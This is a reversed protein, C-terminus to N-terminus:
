RNLGLYSPQPALAIPLKLHAPLVPTGGAQTCVFTAVETAWTHTTELPLGCLVGISLAATFADGVGVTDVVRVPQGARNSSEGAILWLLSGNAGRTLAILKLSYRQMLQDLRAEDTGEIKLL